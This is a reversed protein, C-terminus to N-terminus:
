HARPKKKPPVLKGFAREFDEKSGAGAKKAAARFRASQSKGGSRQKTMSRTTM